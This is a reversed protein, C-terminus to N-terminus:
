AELGEFTLPHGKPIAVAASLLHAAAREGGLLEEPTEQLVDQRLAQDLDPAVAKERRSSPTVELACSIQDLAFPQGVVMWRGFWKQRIRFVVVGVRDARLATDSSQSDDCVDRRHGDQSDGKRPRRWSSM